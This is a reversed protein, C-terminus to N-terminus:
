APNDLFALVERVFLDPATNMAVHGQGPLVCVRSRPLAAHLLAAAEHAFPPSDGGVMLLTPAQIGACRAPDFHYQQVARLERPILPAMILRAPWTPLTRLQALEAPPTRVAEVLFTTAAGERDGAALLAELRAVLDPPLTPGATIWPEYLVLARLLAGAMAAELATIGGYSHGLLDVPAGATAAVAVVDEAERALAYEPADGGAGRGRRDLALVSRRAALAPLVPAWRTHDASIGHVLVLPPGAGSREYAIATGDASLVHEV